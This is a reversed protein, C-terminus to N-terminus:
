WDGLGGFDGPFAFDSFPAFDNWGMFGGWSRQGWAYPAIEPAPAVPAASALFQTVAPNTVPAPTITISICEAGDPGAEVPLQITTREGPALSPISSQRALTLHNRPAVSIMSAPASITGRNEIVLTVLDPATVARAGATAAPLLASVVALSYDGCDASCHRRATRSPSTSNGTGPASRSSTTAFHASARRMNRQAAVPSPIVVSAAIAAAAVVAAAVPFHITRM